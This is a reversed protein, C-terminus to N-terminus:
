GVLVILNILVILSIVTALTCLCLERIRTGTKKGILMQMQTAACYSIMITRITKVSFFTM